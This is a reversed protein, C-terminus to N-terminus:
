SFLCLVMKFPKKKEKRKWGGRNINNIKRGPRSRVFAKQKRTPNQTGPSQSPLVSTRDQCAKLDRGYSLLAQQQAKLPIFKSAALGDPPLEFAPLHSLFFFFFWGPGRSMHIGQCKGRESSIFGIQFLSSLVFM